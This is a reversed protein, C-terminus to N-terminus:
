LKAFIHVGHIAFRLMLMGCSQLNAFSGAPSVNVLETTTDPRVVGKM